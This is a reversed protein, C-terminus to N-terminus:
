STTINRLLWLVCFMVQINNMKGTAELNKAMDVAPGWINYQPRKYGFVGELLPGM